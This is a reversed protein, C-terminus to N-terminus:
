KASALAADQAPEDLAKWADVCEPCCFGIAKGKYIMALEPLVREKRIVQDNMIPCRMNRVAVRGNEDAALSDAVAEAALNSQQDSGFSKPGREDKVVGQSTKGSKPTALAAEPADCGALSNGAVLVLFIVWAIRKHM